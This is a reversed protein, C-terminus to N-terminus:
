FRPSCHGPAPRWCWARPSRPRSSTATGARAPRAAGMGGGHVCDLRGVRWGGLVGPDAAGRGAAGARRRRHERLGAARGGNRHRIGDVDRDPHAGGQAWPHRRVARHHHRGAPADPVGRRVRRVVVAAGGDPGRGPLFEPRDGRRFVCLRRFRVMGARQRDGRRRRGQADRAPRAARGAGARDGATDVERGNDGRFNKTLRVSACAPRSDSCRRWSPPALCACIPARCWCRRARDRRSRRCGSQARQAMGVRWCPRPGCSATNRAAEARRERRGRNKHRPHPGLRHVVRHGAQQQRRDAGDRWGTRRDARGGGAVPAGRGARGAGRVSRIGVLMARGDVVLGPTFVESGLRDAYARQRETALRSAYPDRWGLGDWYDVHWALAIAGHGALEGLLADAPPCSSCGQSTFLELVVPPAARGGRVFGASAAALLLSRRHM